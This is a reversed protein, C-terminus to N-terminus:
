KADGYTGDRKPKKIKRRKMEQLMLWALLHERTLSMDQIKFERKIEEVIEPPIEWGGVRPMENKDLRLDTRAM